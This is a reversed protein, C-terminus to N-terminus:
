QLSYLCIVAVILLCHETFNLKNGTVVYLFIVGIGQIDTV